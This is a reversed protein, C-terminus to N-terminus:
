DRPKFNEASFELRDVIKVAQGIHDVVVFGEPDTVRFSGDPEEIFSDIARIAKMKRQFMMKVAEVKLYARYMDAIIQKNQEVYQSFESKAALKAQGAKGEPGTKLKAVEADLKDQVKKIYDAVYKDADQELAQQNRIPANAHSILTKQLEIPGIKKDITAFAKPDVSMSSLEKIAAKIKASDDKSLNVQGSVDKINADTFWVKPNKKLGSADYGFTASMNELADGEYKTHFVVGLEAAMMERATESDAPVVYTITNPKFAICKEGDITVQKLDGKTFLIDGQLVGDIDLTSLLQLSANLKNRLGQKSVPEGNKVVDGHNSEIDQSSKNLKPSKAFVGKTGVFFKGDAPDKGCFIAPSGDWKTSVKEDGGKGDLTDLLQSFTQIVQKLGADGRLFVIEEAHDLHTNKGDAEVVNEADLLSKMRQHFGKQKLRPKRPGRFRRERGQQLIIESIKM